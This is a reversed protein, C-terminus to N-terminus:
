DDLRLLGTMGIKRKTEPNYHDFEVIHKWSILGNYCQTWLKMGIRDSHMARELERTPMLGNHRRLERRIEQEIRAPLSDAEVPQIYDIAAHRYKILAGAREVCVDEIESLGLDIAFYLALTEFMYQSRPEMGQMARCTSDYDTYRYVGQQIAQDILERTRGAAGTFDPDRHKFFSRPEKPSVLFLMRDLIGTENGAIKAWLSPFMTETTCSMWGFTYSQAPFSYSEGSRKLQNEMKASDFSKLLFSSLTSAKIDMKETLNSLEDNYLIGNRIQAEHMRMCFGEASGCEMLLVKNKETNVPGEWDTLLGAQRSYSQALEAASSKFFKGFPSISCLYLNFRSRGAEIRVKGSLFNMMIQIAPMYIFLDHKSSTALAPKVLGEGISTQDLVWAPFIPRDPIGRTDLFPLIEKERQELLTQVSPVAAATEAPTNAAEINQLLQKTGAPVGDCLVTTDKIPYGGISGAITKVESEDLPPQCRTRNRELLIGEIEDATLQGTQRLKGALSALQVNRQGSPILGSDDLAAMKETKELRTKEASLWPIVEAAPVEPAAFGLCVKYQQKTIPHVSGGSVCQENDVRVSFDKGKQSVNGLALSEASQRFWRHGGQRSAIALKSDLYNGTDKKFRERFDASDIEVVFFGDLNAKAVSGFNCGPYEQAWREIQEFDTTAGDQWAVLFPAKGRLPTQPIGFSAMFKAGDAPSSFEGSADPQPVPQPVISTATTVTIPATPTPQFPQTSM